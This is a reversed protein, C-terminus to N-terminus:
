GGGETKDLNLAASNLWIGWQPGARATGQGAIGQPRPSNKDAGSQPCRATVRVVCPKKKKKPSPPLHLCGAPVPAWPEEWSAWSVSSIGQPKSLGLLCRHFRSLATHSPNEGHSPCRRPVPSAARPTPPRRSPTPPCVRFRPTKSLTPPQVHHGSIARGAEEPPPKSRDWCPCLRWVFGLCGGAPNPRTTWLPQSSSFRGGTPQPHQPPCPPEASEQKKGRCGGWFRLQAGM